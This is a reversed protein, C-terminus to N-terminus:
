LVVYIEILASFNILVDYSLFYTTHIFMNFAYFHCLLCQEKVSELSENM